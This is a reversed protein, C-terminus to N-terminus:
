AFDYNVQKNIEKRINEALVKSEMRRLSGERYTGKMGYEFGNALWRMDIASLTITVEKEECQIKSVHESM